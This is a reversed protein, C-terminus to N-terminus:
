IPGLWRNVYSAAITCGTASGSAPALTARIANVTGAPGYLMPFSGVPDYFTGSGDKVTFYGGALPTNGCDITIDWLTSAALNGPFNLTLSEGSMVNLLVFSQIPAANTNPIHLTWVPRAFVSGAYTINFNTASGSALAWPSGAPTTAAIDRFWQERFQLELDFKWRVYANANAIRIVSQRNAVGKFRAYAFTLNDFSLRQEGAATLAALAAGLPASVERYEFPLARVIPGWDSALYTAEGQYLLQALSLDQTLDWITDQLFWSNLDNLNINSLVGQGQPQALGGFNCV